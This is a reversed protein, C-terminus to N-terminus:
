FISYGGDIVITQGTLYGSAPSALLVAIPGFDEPVGWRRIPVRPLVKREFSELNLAVDTMATEIWGPLIANATIFNRGYEVALGRIMAVVGGKSAGYHESRPQGEIAALSATAVLSGGQGREVMHAAAARLTLFVGDLNISLVRHWEDLTLNTFGYPMGGVGANAFCSDVKGMAEVSRAFASAVEGEDGVNCQVALVRGPGVTDLREAAADNKAQNTGWIVVDAGAAALGEAMGLGIGSNGGTILAVHSTLDFPGPM